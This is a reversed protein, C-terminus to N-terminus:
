NRERGTPLEWCPLQSGKFCTLLLSDKWDLWTRKTVWNQFHCMMEGAENEKRSALGHDLPPIAFPDSSCSTCNCPTEQPAAQLQCGLKCPM